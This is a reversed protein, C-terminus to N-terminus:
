KDDEEDTLYGDWSDILMDNKLDRTNWYDSFICSVNMSYYFQDLNALELSTNTLCRDPLMYHFVDLVKPLNPIEDVSLYYESLYILVTYFLVRNIFAQIKEKPFKTLSLMMQTAILYHTQVVYLREILDGYVEYVISNWEGLTVATTENPPYSPFIGVLEDDERVILEHQNYMYERFERDDICSVQGVYLINEPDLDRMYIDYIRKNKSYFFYSTLERTGVVVRYSGYFYVYRQM